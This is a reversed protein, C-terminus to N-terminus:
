LFELYIFSLLFLPFLMMYSYKKIAKRVEKALEKDVHSVAKFKQDGCRKIKYKKQHNEEIARNILKLQKSANNCFIEYNVIIYKKDDVERLQQTIKNKVKICQIVTDTVKDQKHESLVDSNVRLGWGNRGERFVNGAKLTSIVIDELNRDVIIFFCKSFISNLRKINLSNRGSKSIIPAEVSDYLRAFYAFISSKIDSTLVEPVMSHDKGYWQDWVEHADNIEFLGSTQGYYNKYPSRKCKLLNPMFFKHIIYSSRPFLSNFNGISYFPFQRSVVQSVFTAGSRHSGTVFIMLPESNTSPFFYGLVSILIDIPKLILVFVRYLFTLYAVRNKSLAIAMVINANHLWRTKM